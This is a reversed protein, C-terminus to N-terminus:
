QGDTIAKDKAKIAKMEEFTTTFYYRGAKDSYFFYYNTTAPNLAAQIAKIGPSCIPGAPLASCNNTNYYISYRNVDGSIYPKIYRRIYNITCELQLQMPKNLRNYIVSSVTPMLTSDGAEKEILSAITLIEDMTYGLSDAKAKMDATIKTETHDLIKNIVSSAKSLRYFEYTDPFLYGELLYCRNENPEINGILSHESYDVNYLADYLYDTSACVGKKVLLEFVQPVSYGEPITVKVTSSIGNVSTAKPISVIKMYPNYAILGSYISTDYGATRMKAEDFYVYGGTTGMVWKLSEMQVMFSSYTNSVYPKVVQKKQIGKAKATALYTYTLSGDKFVVSRGNLTNKLTAKQTKEDYSYSLVPMLTTLEGLPVMVDGTSSLEIGAQVSTDNWDYFTYKGNQDATIIGYKKAEAAAKAHTVPIVASIICLIIVSISLLKFNKSRNEKRQITHM